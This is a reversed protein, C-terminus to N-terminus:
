SSIDVIINIISVLTPRVIQLHKRRLINILIIPQIILRIICVHMIDKRDALSIIGGLFTAKAHTDICSVETISPFM